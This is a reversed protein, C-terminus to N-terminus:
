WDLGLVEGGARTIAAKLKDPTLRAPEVWRVSGDCLAVNCGTQGPLALVSPAATGTFEIDDPKTWIVPKGGGVILITNSTGDAIATMTTRSGPYIVAETGSFVKYRTQGPLDTVLPSAFTVPMRDILKKNNPSDWPEDLKFQRYLADEGIYPLLHVRWSLGGKFTGMKGDQPPFVQNADHYNHMALALQKLNNSDKMRAASVRVKQTAPLLLGVSAAATGAYLAAVSPVRPTLVVESGDTKLPPDALWEDLANLSGLGFLGGVMGPLESLPRPKPQGPPGNLAKEAEKKPEALKSRGFKALERLATEGEAATADDKYKARIEVRTGEDTLAVGLMLSEARLATQANKAAEKYEGEVGEFMKLPIGLQSMSLAAVFHRGGDRAHEAAKALPGATGTNLKLLFNRMGPGDGIAMTTNNPFHLAVGEVEDEYYERDGVKKAAANKVHSARVKEPDFPSSFALLVVAKTDGGLNPPVINDIGGFPGFGGPGPPPPPPFKGKPEAAPPVKLFVLTMRDLTSPAPVFSEDLAAKAQPGAADIIKRVEAFSESDWLGRLRIHVFGAAEGPVLDMEDAKGMRPGGPVGKKGQKLFYTTAAGAAGGVLLGVVLWLAARGGRRRLTGLLM